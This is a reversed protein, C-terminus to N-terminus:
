FVSKKKYVCWVYILYKNWFVHYSNNKECFYFLLFLVDKKREYINKKKAFLFHKEFYIKM